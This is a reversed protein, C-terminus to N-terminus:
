LVFFFGYIKVIYCIVHNYMLGYWVTIMLLRWRFGCWRYYVLLCGYVSTYLLCGMLVLWGNGYGVTCYGGWARKLISQIEVSDAYMHEWSTLTDISIWQKAIPLCKLLQQKVLGRKLTPLIQVSLQM